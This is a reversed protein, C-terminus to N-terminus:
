YCPRGRRSRKIQRDLGTDASSSNRLGGGTYSCSTELVEILTQLAVRNEESQKPSDSLAAGEDLGRRLNEFAAGSHTRYRELDPAMGEVYEDLTGAARNVVNKADAVHQQQARSGRIHKEREIQQFLSEAEATRVHLQENMRETHGSIRTLTESVSNTAEHFASMYDLLGLDDEVSRKLYFLVRVRQSDAQFTALAAAFEEETGSGARPTPTGFRTGLLGVYIDYSSGIQRNIEAQPDSSIGPRIDDPWGVMRLTIGHARELIRNLEEIVLRLAAKESDTETTGSVFGTLQIPNKAM